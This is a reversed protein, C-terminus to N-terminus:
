DDTRFRDNVLVACICTRHQNVPADDRAERLTEIEGRREASGGASDIEGRSPATSRILVVWRHQRM